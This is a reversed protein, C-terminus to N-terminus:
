FSIRFRLSNGGGYMPAKRFQEVLQGGNKEIVRQSGINTLDTTLEVYSLGEAKAEPLFLALARTAYGLRRKWPVVAFGVHGLVHPPLENTGPQWRFNIVGCFEGDWIWRHYGPLRAITSGDPMTVRRGQPDRDVQEALFHNADEEIRALNEQAAEPRLNDPSWGRRLADAYSPLYELAPWVLEMMTAFPDLSARMIAGVVGRM